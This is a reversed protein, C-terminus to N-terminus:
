LGSITIGVAFPNMEPGLGSKFQPNLSYQAFVSFNGWGLRLTPSFTWTPTYGNFAFKQTITSSGVIVREKTHVSLLYGIKMGLAAKFGVNRNYKNAFFRLELPAELYTANFKIKKYNEDEPSYLDRFVVTANGENLIMRQDSFYYNYTGVGLGAAFSLNPAKKFPFDMMVYASFGRNFGKTNISDPKNMWDDYHLQIMFLDRSKSSVEKKEPATQQANVENMSLASLGLSIAFAWFSLKM